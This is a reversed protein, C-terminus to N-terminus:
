ALYGHRAAAYAGASRIHFRTKMAYLDDHLQGINSAGLRRVDRKVDEILSALLPKASGRDVVACSTGGVVTKVGANEGGKSYKCFEMQAPMVQLTGMGRYLKLRMGDHYFADGPSETTGALLAGCMVTSAGLALAMAALSASIIGGDAIVPVGFEAAYRAVHYIASAQPRGIAPVEQLSNLSSCGMGVRLADAGADILPKAQRPTVVNGCVVDLSPFEHKVKKLFDVQHNTDGNSADLVLVDVGAEVLLRVRDLESPRPQCAAAVLLQRNADKSALAFDKSKKLDGRSVLAVLEGAENLIPLKGKKSDILKKQAESLSIPELGFQCKAKPTMVESLKTKRNEVFDIDRSTVIGVFKDGMHGHDTILVTSVDYRARIQDVDEVLHQPSLVHPDMIFGNEFRKVADVEKAQTKPDCNCHIVGIGGMLALTIAMRGETVTDMPAGVFPTMLTVNRSFPTTLDVESATPASPAPLALLDELNYGFCPSNFLSDADLGDTAM